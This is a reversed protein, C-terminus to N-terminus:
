INRLKLPAIVVPVVRIDEACRYRTASAGYGLFASANEPFSLITDQFVVVFWGTACIIVGIWRRRGNTEYGFTIGAIILIAGFTFFM